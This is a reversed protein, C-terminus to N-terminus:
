CEMRRCKLIIWLSLVWIMMKKMDQVSNILFLIGHLLCLLWDHNSLETGDERNWCGWGQGMLCSPGPLSFSSSVQGVFGCSTNCEGRLRLAQGTESLGCNKVAHGRDERCHLLPAAASLCCIICSIHVPSLWFMRDQGELSLLRSWISQLSWWVM